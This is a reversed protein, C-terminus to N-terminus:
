RGRWRRLLNAVKQHFLAATLAAQKKGFRGALQVNTDPPMSERLYYRYEGLAVQTGDESWDNTGSKHKFVQALFSYKESYWSQKISVGNSVLANDLKDILPSLNILWDVAFSFPVKEWALKAPGTAFFRSLLYDVEQFSSSEYKVGRTGRIGVRRIAQVTPYVQCHLYGAQSDQPSYASGLQTNDVTVTAICSAISSHERLAKRALQRLRERTRPFSSQIKKFDSILPAIGFQYGLYSNSIDGLTVRGPRRKFVRGALALRIPNIARNLLDCASAITGITQGFELVNLLNDTENVDNFRETAETMLQEKTKPFVISFKNLPIVGPISGIDHWMSYNGSLIDVRRTKSNYHWSGMM